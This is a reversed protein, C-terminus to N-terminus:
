AWRSRRRNLRSSGKAKAQGALQALQGHIEASSFVEAKGASQAAASLALATLAMLCAFKM